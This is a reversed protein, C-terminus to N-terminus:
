LTVEKWRNNNYELVKKTARCKMRRLPTREFVEHEKGCLPCEDTDYPVAKERPCGCAHCNDGVNEVYDAVCGCRWIVIRGKEAVKVSKCQPQDCYLYERPEGEETSGCLWGKGGDNMHKIVRGCFICPAAAVDQKDPVPRGTVARGALTYPKNGSM